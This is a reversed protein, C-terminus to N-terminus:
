KLEKLEIYLHNNEDSNIKFCEDVPEHDFAILCWKDDNKKVISLIKNPIGSVKRLEDMRSMLFKSSLGEDIKALMKGENFITELLFQGFDSNLNIIGHQYIKM